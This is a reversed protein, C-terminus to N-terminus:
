DHATEDPVTVKASALKTPPKMGDTLLLGCARKYKKNSDPCLGTSEVYSEAVEPGHVNELIARAENFTPQNLYAGAFYSGGCLIVVVGVVVSITLMQNATERWDAPQKETKVTPEPLEQDEDIIGFKTGM